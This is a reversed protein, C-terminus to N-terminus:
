CVFIFIGIFGDNSRRGDRIQNYSTTIEYVGVGDNKPADQAVHSDWRTGSADDQSKAKRLQSSRMRGNKEM